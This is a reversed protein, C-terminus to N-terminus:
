KIPTIPNIKIEGFTEEYRAINSNLANAFAKAHQPSMTIRSNIKPKDLGEIIQGFTLAFDFLSGVIEVHNAYYMEIENKNEEM